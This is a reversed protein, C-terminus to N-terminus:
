PTALRPTEILEVVHVVAQSGTPYRQLYKLGSQEFATAFSRDSGVIDGPSPAGSRILM